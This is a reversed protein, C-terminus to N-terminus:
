LWGTHGSPGGNFAKMQCTARFCPVLGQVGGLCCVLDPYSSAAVREFTAFFDDKRYLQDLPRDLFPIPQSHDVVYGALVDDFSDLLQGFASSSLGFALLDGVIEITVFNQLERGFELPFSEALERLSSDRRLLCDGFNLILEEIGPAFYGILSLSQKNL